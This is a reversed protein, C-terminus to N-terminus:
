DQVRWYISEQRELFGEDVLYRRLSASDPNYRQLIQNVQKEPYRVGPEFAQALYKLIVLSKKHQSPVAKLRGDPTIFDKLVKREFDEGEFDEAKSRPRSKELVQRSQALWAEKDIQYTEGTKQAYGFHELMWLHNMVEKISLRTLETVQGATLAQDTLLAAIKIRELNSFTKFFDLLTTNIQTEDM